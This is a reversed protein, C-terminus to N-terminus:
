TQFHECILLPSIEIANHGIPLPPLFPLQTDMQQVPSHLDKQSLTLSLESWSIDSLLWMWMLASEVAACVLEFLPLLGSTNPLVQNFLQENM